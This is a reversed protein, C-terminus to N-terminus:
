LMKRTLLQPIRDVILESILSIHGGKAKFYNKISNYLIVATYSSSSGTLTSLTESKVTETYTNSSDKAKM